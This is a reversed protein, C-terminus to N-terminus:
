RYLTITISMKIHTVIIFSPDVLIVEDKSKNAERPAILICLAFLLPCTKCIVKDEERSIEGSVFVRWGRGTDNSERERVCVCM